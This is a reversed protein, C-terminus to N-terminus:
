SAEELQKRLEALEGEAQGRRKTLEAITLKNAELDECDTCNACKQSGCPKVEFRLTEIGPILSCSQMTLSRGCTNCMIEINANM